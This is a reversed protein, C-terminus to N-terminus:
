TNNVVKKVTKRKRTSSTSKIPTKRTRSAPKKSRPKRKPKTTSVTTTENDTSEKKLEPDEALEEVNLLEPEPTKSPEEVNKESLLSLGAPLKSKPVEEQANENNLKLEAAIRRLRRQKRKKPTM